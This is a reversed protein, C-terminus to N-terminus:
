QADGGDKTIGLNDIGAVRMVKKLHNPLNTIILRGGMDQMLRYRGLVLGIGSSDMFEVGAFSLTLINASSRRVANDIEERVGTINHHDIEGSLLVTVAQDKIEIKAPM